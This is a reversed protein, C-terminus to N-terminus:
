RIKEVLEKTKNYAGLKQFESDDRFFVSHHLFIYKGCSDIIKFLDGPEFYKYSNSTSLINQSNANKSVFVNKFRPFVENQLQKRQLGLAQESDSSTYLNSIILDPNKYLNLSLENLRSSLTVDGDFFIQKNKYKFSKIRNEKPAFNNIANEINKYNIGFQTAIASRALIQSVSLKTMLFPECKIIKESKYIIKLSNDDIVAEFDPKINNNVTGYTIFPKPIKRLNQKTIDDDINAVPLTGPQFIQVKSNFIDQHSKIDEMGLHADGINLISAIDPQLLNSLEGVHSARNMSMELVLIDHYNEIFNIVMSYLNLPTIRKSYLRLVKQETSLVDELMAIGTTKGVSGTFAAVKPRATDLSFKYLKQIANEISNVHLVRYTNKHTNVINIDDTIIAGNPNNRAFLNAKSKKDIDFDYWGNTNKEYFSFYLQKSTDIKNSLEGSPKVIDMFTFNYNDPLNFYEGGIIQKLLAVNFKM